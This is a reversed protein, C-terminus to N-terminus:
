PQLYKNVYFNLIGIELKQYNDYKGFVKNLSSKVKTKNIM